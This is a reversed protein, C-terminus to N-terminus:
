LAAAVVVGIYSGGSLLGLIRLRDWIGPIRNKRSKLVTSPFYKQRELMRCFGLRYFFWQIKVRLHPKSGMQIWHASIHLKLITVLNCPSVDCLACTSGDFVSLTLNKQDRPRKSLNSPLIFKLERSKLKQTGKVTMPHTSLKLLHWICKWSRFCTPISLIKLEQFLHSYGLWHWNKVAKSQLWALITHILLFINYM